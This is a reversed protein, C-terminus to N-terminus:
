VSKCQHNIYTHLVYMTFFRSTIKHTHNKDPISDVIDLVAVTIVVDVDPVSKIGFLNCFYGSKTHIFSKISPKNVHLYICIYM